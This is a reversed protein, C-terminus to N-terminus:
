VNELSLDDRKSEDTSAETTEVITETQPATEEAKENTSSQYMPSATTRGSTPSFLHIENGVREYM